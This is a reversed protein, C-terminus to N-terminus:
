EARPPVPYVSAAAGRSSGAAGPRSASSAPPVNHREHDIRLARGARRDRQRNAQDGRPDGGPALRLLQAAHGIRRARRRIRRRRPRLRRERAAGEGAPRHHRHLLAADGLLVPRGRPAVLHDRRSLLAGAVRGDRRPARSLDRLPRRRVRALEGRRLVRPRLVPDPDLHLPGRGAQRARGEGDGAAARLALGAPDGALPDELVDGPLPRLRRRRAQVAPRGAAGRLAAARLPQGRGRAAGPRARPRGAAPAAGGVDDGRLPEPLQAGHLHVEAAPGRGRAARAGARARRDGDRRRRRRGAGDRGPLLLVRARGRPIDAGGRDGRRRPRRADERGPRDGAPGRHHRDRRRSGPGHGRGGDGRPHVGQDRRLGRDPRVPAGRGREGARDADDARRLERPPLDLHRPPRRRALDGRPPRHDGDPRADREIADGPHARRVPGLLARPRPRDHPRAPAPAGRSRGPLEPQREPRGDAATHRLGAVATSM